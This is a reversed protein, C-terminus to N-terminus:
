NEEPLDLDTNECLWERLVDNDGFTLYAGCHACFYETESYDTVEPVDWEFDGDADMGKARITVTAAYVTCDIGRNHGCPLIITIM